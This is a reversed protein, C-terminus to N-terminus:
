KREGNDSRVRVADVSEFLRTLNRCIPENRSPFIRKGVSCDKLDLPLLDRLDASILLHRSRDTEVAGAM